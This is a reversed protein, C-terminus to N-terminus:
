YHVQSHTQRNTWKCFKKLAYKVMSDNQTMNPIIKLFSKSNNLVSPILYKSNKSNKLSRMRQLRRPGAKKKKGQGSM